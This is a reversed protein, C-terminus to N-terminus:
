AAARIDGIMARLRPELEGGQAIMLEVYSYDHHLWEEIASRYAPRAKLRKYWGAVRPRSEWLFGLQLHDFRTIYPAFGIDALSYEGTLWDPGGGALAKGPGTGGLAEEIQAFLLDVRALATTFHANDIGGRVSEMKRERKYPDRVKKVQDSHKAQHRFAISSTLVGTAAHINEDNMRTWIRMQGRKYSDKPRLSPGDFMEDIYENIVSSEPLVNGDHVLVPVLGFPNIALYYDSYQESARLDILKGEWPVGKEALALRVKAACVSTHHHYLFVGM